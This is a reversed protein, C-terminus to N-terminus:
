GFLLPSLGRLFVLVEYYKNVASGKIYRSSRGRYLEGLASVILIYGTSVQAAEIPRSLM